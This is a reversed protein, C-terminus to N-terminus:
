LIFNLVDYVTDHWEPNCPPPRYEVHHDPDLGILDAVELGREAGSRGSSERRM